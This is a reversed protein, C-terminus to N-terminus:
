RNSGTFITRESCAITEKNARLFFRRLILRFVKTEGSDYVRTPVRPPSVGAPNTLRGLSTYDRYDTYREENIPGNYSLRSRFAAM